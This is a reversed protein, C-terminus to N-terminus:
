ERSDTWVPAYKKFSSHVSACFIKTGSNEFYKILDQWIFEQAYKTPHPVDQSVIPTPASIGIQKQLEKDHYIHPGSFDLGHIIIKKFGSHYALMVGTIVTSGFQPMILGPKSFLRLCINKGFILQKDLVVSYDINPISKLIFKINSHYINKLILNSINDKKKKLLAFTKKKQRFISIRKLFTKEQLTTEECFYIDFKYSLFGAFNMGIIYDDKKVINKKYSDLASYGTGIVHCIDNRKKVISVLNKYSYIKTEPRRKKLYYLNKIERISLIFDSRLQLLEQILTYKKLTKKVTDIM